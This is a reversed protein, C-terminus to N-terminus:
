ESSFERIATEIRDIADLYGIAKAFNLAEDLSQRKRVREDTVPLMEALMVLADVRDEMVTGSQSFLPMSQELFARSEPWLGRAAKCKALRLYIQAQVDTIITNEELKANPVLSTLEELLVEQQGKLGLAGLADASKFRFIFWTRTLEETERTLDEFVRLAIGPEGTNLAIQAILDERSSQM